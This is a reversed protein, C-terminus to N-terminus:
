EGLIADLTAADDSCKTRAFTPGQDVAEAARVRRILRGPSGDELVALV